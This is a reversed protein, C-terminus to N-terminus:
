PAACMVMGVDLGVTADVITAMADDAALDVFSRVRTSERTPV